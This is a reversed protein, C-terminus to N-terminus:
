VLKLVSFILYLSKHSLEVGKPLGTTGSSFLIVCTETNDYVTPVCKNNEEFLRTNCIINIPIVYKVFHLQRTTDKVTEFGMKSVIMIKPKSINLVHTLEEPLFLFYFVIIIFYCTVFM